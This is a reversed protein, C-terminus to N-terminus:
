LLSIEKMNENYKYRKNIWVHYHIIIDKDLKIENKSNHPTIIFENHKINYKFTNLIVKKYKDQGIYKAIKLINNNIEDDENKNTLINSSMNITNNYNDLFPEIKMEPTQPLYIFEDADILAINRCKKKYAQVGLTLSIRQISNWHKEITNYPFDIITIKNKYKNKIYDMNKDFICYDISENISNKKNEDNNFIVIGSFGLHLNYEIWEDLRHYYDKCMTSIIASQRQDLEMNCQEFPFKLEINEFINYNNNKNDFKIMITYKKVYNINKYNDNSINDNIIVCYDPYQWSKSNKSTILNNNNDKVLLEFIKKNTQYYLLIENTEKMYICCQNFFM